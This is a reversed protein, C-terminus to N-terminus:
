EAAQQDNLVSALYNLTRVVYPHDEDFNKLHSKLALKYLKRAGELDGQNRLVLALNNRRVAVEPHDEGLNRLDSVLAQELLERAGELDGQDHLVAALNNRRKAVLPHDEGLNRLDSALAQEYLERAGELDGQDSLVLGLVNCRVAVLPHDEGLNRLDSALAQEYLERAGELDGQDRLVVALNNRCRAVAPHDEGFNKLDSALALEVLERAGELDGLKHLVEALNNRRIAVNPHDESFNRLDSTLAQEYLERAGELDGQAQLVMALNNRRVAVKPHGEGLNSLNSALALEILERAGEYKGLSQLGTAIGNQLESVREDKPGLVEPAMGVAADLHSRTPLYHRFATALEFRDAFTACGNVFAIRAEELSDGRLGFERTLRHMWWRHDGDVEILHLRQLKRRLERTLGVDETLEDIVPEAEFCSALTWASRTEEDLRKLLTAFAQSVTHSYPVDESVEQEGGGAQLEELYSAPTEQPFAALFAGALEVALAHGGLHELLEDVGDELEREAISELLERAFPTQLFGVTVHDFRTGGLRRRRTTVLLRMHPGVPLPAPQEEATWTEVNDLVVLISEGKAELLRLVAGARKELPGDPIDLATAIAGGWVPVLDPNEADLWFIGGPFAADLALQYVLQLALETKGIGPLGEVSAAIRVANSHELLKRLQETEEGRGVFRKSPTRPAGYLRSM